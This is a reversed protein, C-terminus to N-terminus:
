PLTSPVSTRSKKASDVISLRPDPMRINVDHPSLDPVQKVGHISPQICDYYRARHQRADRVRDIRKTWFANAIRVRAEGGFVKTQPGQSPKRWRFV